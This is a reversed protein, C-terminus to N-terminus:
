GAGIAAEIEPHMEWFGRALAQNYVVQAAAFVAKRAAYIGPDTVEIREGRLFALLLDETLQLFGQNELVPDLDGRDLAQVFTLMNKGVANVDWEAKPDLAIILNLAALEWKTLPDLQSKRTEGSTM